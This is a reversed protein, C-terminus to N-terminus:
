RRLFDEVRLTCRGKQLSLDGPLAPIVEGERALVACLLSLSLVDVVAM